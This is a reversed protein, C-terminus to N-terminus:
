EPKRRIYGSDGSHQLPKEMFVYRYRDEMVEDAYNYNVNGQRILAGISVAGKKALEAMIAHTLAKGLGQHEPEVGMYLLVYDSCHLKKVLARCLVAPSKKRSALNGYNPLGMFFGVARGQWYAIKIMSLDAVSQYASLYRVFEEETIPKYTLFSTYLRSVMRYVERVTQEWEGPRPSRIVYGRSLFEEYRKQYKPLSFQTKSLKRYQNSVYEEKVSFGCHTFLSPYYPLNYPEGCYPPRDFHNAKFRYRIWLSADLPGELSLYGKQAAAAEVTGILLDAAAQNEECEFFGFYATPDDPYETLACRGLPIGDEEAIWASLTFYHSLMHTGRLLEEEEARNGTITKQSYLRGPLALFKRITDETTCPLIQIM